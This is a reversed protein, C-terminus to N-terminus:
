WPEFCLFFLGFCFPRPTSSKRFDEELLPLNALRFLHFSWTQGTLIYRPVIKKQPIWWIKSDQYIRNRNHRKPLPIM